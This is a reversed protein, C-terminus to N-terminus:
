CIYSSIFRSMTKSSPFLLIPHKTIKSYFVQILTKRNIQSWNL